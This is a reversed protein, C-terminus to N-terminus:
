SVVNTSIELFVDLLIITRSSSSCMHFTPLFPHSHLSLSVAFLIHGGYEVEDSFPKKQAPHM